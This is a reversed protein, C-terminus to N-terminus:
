APSSEFVRSPPKCIAELSVSNVAGVEDEYTIAVWLNFRVSPKEPFAPPVVPIPVMLERLTRAPPVDANEIDGCPHAAEAYELKKICINTLDPQDDRPGVYNLLGRRRPKDPDFVWDSVRSHLITADSGGENYIRFTIIPAEGKEGSSISAQRLVLKPPYAEVHGRRAIEASASLASAMQGMAEAQVEMAIQQSDMVDRQEKATRESRVLLIIQLAGTLSLFGTFVTLWLTYRALAIEPSEQEANKPTSKQIGHHPSYPTLAFATLSVAALSAVVVSRRTFYWM